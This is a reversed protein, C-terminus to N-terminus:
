LIDKHYSIISCTVLNLYELVYRLLCDNKLVFDEFWIFLVNKNTNNIDKIKKIINKYWDCFILVNYGPYAPGKNIFEIFLKM